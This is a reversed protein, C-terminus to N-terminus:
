RASGPSPKPAAVVAGTTVDVVHATGYDHDDALHVAQLRSVDHGGHRAHVHAREVVHEPTLDPGGPLSLVRQIHAIRGTSPDYLAVGRSVTGDPANM